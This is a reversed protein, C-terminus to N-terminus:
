QIEGAYEPPAKSQGWLEPKDSPAADYYDREVDVISNRFERPENCRRCIGRSIPGNAPEIVWHHCCTEVQADEPATQVPEQRIVM